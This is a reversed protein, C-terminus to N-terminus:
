RFSVVAGEGGGEGAHGKGGSRARAFVAARAAQRLRFYLLGCACFLALLVGFAIGAGNPGSGGGGGASAVPQVAAASPSPLPSAATSRGVDGAQMEALSWAGGRVGQQSVLDAADQTIRVRDLVSGDANSVAEFDLTSGDPTVGLRGFGYTLSIRELTSAGPSGPPVGEMEVGGNGVIIHLPARPQAYVEAAEVVPPPSPLGPLPPAGVLTVNARVSRALCPPLDTSGPLPLV